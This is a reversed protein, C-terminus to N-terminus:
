GGRKQANRVDIRVGDAIETRPHVLVVDGPKLGKEVVAETPTRAGLDVARLRARGGDAVFVAWGEPRRFLASSPVETADSLRRVLIRVDVQYGDGLAAWKERPSVLDIVVDVRQEEVGLASIKTVASPEVRRVRGDLSEGGGWRVIRVEADPPIRVADATLVDAVIELSAPDGLEVLPTGPAVVGESKQYVRLVVGAVPARVEWPRGERGAVSGTGALAARAVEVQHVAVRTASRAADLAHQRAHVMSEAHDLDSAPAAGAATLTRLRDRDSVLEQLTADAEQEAARAASLSAEAARARGELEVRTRADVPSPALTALVGGEAVRDGPELTIRQLAGPVPASVVFRERVRTKGDTEVVDEFPGREVLATEVAAPPTRFLAWLLVAGGALSIPWLLHRTKWRTM